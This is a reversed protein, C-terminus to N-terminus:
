GKREETPVATAQFAVMQWRGDRLAWVQVTRGHLRRAPTGDASARMDVDLMGNMVAVDGFLRVRLDSRRYTRPKERMDQMYEPKNQIMGSMHTYTLDDASLQDLAVWDAQHIAALRRQEAQLVAEAVDQGVSIRPM